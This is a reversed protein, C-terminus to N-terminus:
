VAYYRRVKIDRGILFDVGDKLRYPHEYVVEKIRAEHIIHACDLCPAHTVYLTLPLNFEDVGLYKRLFQIANSEAHTAITCPKDVDCIETCPKENPAPQGNYGSSVIRGEYTIICGVNLRKCTSRQGMLKAIEMSTIDRKNSQAM